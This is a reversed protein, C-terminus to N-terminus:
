DLQVREGGVRQIYMPYGPGRPELKARLAEIDASADVRVTSIANGWSFDLGGVGATAMLEDALAQVEGSLPSVLTMRVGNKAPEYEMAEGRPDVVAETTAASVVIGDNQVDIRAYDLEFAAALVSRFEASQPESMVVPITEIQVLGQSYHSAGTPGVVLPEDKVVPLLAQVLRARDDHSLEEHTLMPPLKPQERETPWAVELEGLALDAAELSRAIEIFSELIGLRGDEWLGGLALRWDQGPAESTVRNGPGSFAESDLQDGIKQLQEESAHPDISLEVSYKLGTAPFPQPSSRVEAAVVGDLDAFQQGLRDSSDVIGCATSAFLLACAGALSGLTIRRRGNGESMRM